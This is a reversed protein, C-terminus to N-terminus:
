FAQEGFYHFIGDNYDFRVNDLSLDNNNKRVCNRVHNVVFQQGGQYVNARVTQPFRGLLKGIQEFSPEWRTLM